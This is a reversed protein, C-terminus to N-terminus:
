VRIKCRCLKYVGMVQGSYWGLDGQASTTDFVNNTDLQAFGILPMNREMSGIRFRRLNELARGLRDWAVVERKVQIQYDKKKHIMNAKDDSDWSGRNIRGLDRMEPWDRVGGGLIMINNDINDRFLTDM